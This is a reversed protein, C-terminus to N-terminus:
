VGFFVAPSVSFRRALAEIQRANLKRKGALIASVNPQGGLEKSVDAQSLGHQEMLFALMEAGSVAKSTKPFRVKEYNEILLGLTEAYAALDKKLPKYDASALADSITTLGRLASDYHQKTAIPTLPFAECLENYLSSPHPLSFKRLELTLERGIRKAVSM